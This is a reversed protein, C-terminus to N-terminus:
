LKWFNPNHNIRAIYESYAHYPIAKIIVTTM